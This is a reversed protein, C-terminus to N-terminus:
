FAKESVAERKKRGRQILYILSIGGLGVIDTYIGPKILLLAFALLSIREYWRTRTFFYGQIFSSFCYMGIIASICVWILEGATTNIMLLQTNYLYMFPLTFASADLKFSNWGTRIPDSKAIGAAAYACLGVPPTDDAVIGYYFVFLHAAIVPVGIPVGVEVIAPATMAAMMIYTATTPLGMGLIISAFVAFILTLYLKGQALTVILITMKLGLGTLTVVGIIIGCCATAAAIGIMNRAGMEMGELIQSLTLVSTKGTTKLSISETAYGIVLNKVVNIGLTVMISWFAATLPTWLQIVLLYILVGLPILYYFGHTFTRIASPVEDKPLPKIGSKLAEIHVISFIAIYSLVAPIIAHKVVQIYPIGIFEAMIFAAAGMVPPMLQGNTSAAVEVAGAMEPRFGVKKMLPITFTGTTVTNAISSGSVTGFFASAVVAAKAPGGKFRGMTAYAMDILFKGGGMRELFAGFVVFLFVYTSSVGLPVGWIGEMTMFEHDLLRRVNYGRHAIADPLYPGVFAYVIFVITIFTLAPSVSRRTAELVLLILVIATILDLSTPQGVRFTMAKYFVFVYLASAAGLIAFCWDWWPVRTQYRDRKIPFFFFCLAMAFSLHVSRQLMATFVGVGATYIQFFSMGIAISAVLIRVFGRLKRGGYETELVLAETEKADVQKKRGM